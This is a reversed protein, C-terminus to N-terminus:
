RQIAFRYTGAAVQFVTQGNDMRQFRIGDFSSVPKGSETVNKDVTAPIYVTATTNPPITLNMMIPEGPNATWESVIKGYVSDYEARASTIGSAESIRPHIVIHKFAAGPASDIGAMYRYLWEGVAGFAYHNFSNMGPDGTDGNWREWITTAGKRITYGWSPFTDNTLLKYAIDSRGAMSLARMLYCTGVFGTSLHTDRKEIDRVLVDAAAKKLNAPLLDMHIALAQCTQSGNGVTGDDKVFAKIFAAKIGEHLSQYKIAAAPRNTAAAMEAMLNADYAWYATAIVDKPTESNAPVWDGFDNNRRKLWLLNPNVSHIYEIWREMAPWNEEIIRTDGYQRYVEYPVIVGADGWAPAGDSNDVIRPSVDSFGGESSQADVVDRMWKSYFAAMDMNFCGTRAFIEADGMWGLREDRQPCDTPISHHNGRQGWRINQQLQNVLPNSTMLSGSWPMKSYFVRGLLASPGPKGPFGTVEVYRFGHYTFHPEFTEEGGGKLTYTDTAEAARLNDRYINGDPKLIEAFRMKVATGAPGRVKLRVWGVMNQGMDYVYTDPGPNTVAKPKLETEVQITESRQAHMRIAPIPYVAASKWGADSFGARDWGAQEKRADYTEGAYIESRLIPAPAVKWSDDTAVTQNSGDALQVELQALLRTPAPGFNFRRLPWGLGTAYWGDGLIAGIANEGSKVLTTVDYTQYTIRKRYDTWDPTLIDEGVRKGNIHIRYSGLATVYVRASRIQKEVKFDKRLMAATTDTQPSIAPMDWPKEGMAHIVAPLKWEVATTGALTNWGSASREAVRWSSEGTIRRFTGDAFNIRIIAALGAPGGVNRAAIAVANPGAVLMEKIPMAAFAQWGEQTGCRKGNVYATMDNDVAGYLFASKIQKGAPIDFTTRFYRTANPPDAGAATEPYWVWKVDAIPEAASQDVTTGIWKAKWDRPSFLGTEWYSPESYPGTKGDKDWVRVNWFYRTRSQLFPGGYVVHVSQDSAITGSDWVDPKASKLASLSSAVRVQYATQRGGRRSDVVVWSLRPRDIDLGLPRDLYEVRLKTPPKASQAVCEISPFLAIVIVAVVFPLRM